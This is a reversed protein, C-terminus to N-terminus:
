DTSVLNNFIEALIKSLGYYGGLNNTAKRDTEIINLAHPNEYVVASSLFIVPIKENHGNVLNLCFPREDFIKQTHRNNNYTNKDPLKAGFSFNGKTFM